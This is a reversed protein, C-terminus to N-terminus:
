GLLYALYACDPPSTLQYNMVAGYECCAFGRPYQINRVVRYFAQIFTTLDSSEFGGIATVNPEVTIRYFLEVAM